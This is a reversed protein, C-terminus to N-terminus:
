PAATTDVMSDDVMSDDVMSDDVMSDDVMSDDVMSDDTAGAPQTVPSPEDDDDGCATLVLAGAM